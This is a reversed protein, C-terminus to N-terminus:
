ADDASVFPLVRLGDLNDICDEEREGKIEDGQEMDGTDSISLCTYFIAMCEKM